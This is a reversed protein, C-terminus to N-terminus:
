DPVPGSIKLISGTCYRGADHKKNHRCVNKPFIKHTFLSEFYPSGLERQIRFHTIQQLYKFAYGRRGYFFHELGYLLL